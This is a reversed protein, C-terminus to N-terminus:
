TFILKFTIQKFSAIAGRGDDENSELFFMNCASDSGLMIQQKERQNPPSRTTETLSQKLIETWVNDIFSIALVM